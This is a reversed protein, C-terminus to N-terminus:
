GVRINATVNKEKESGSSLCGCCFCVLLFICYEKRTNQLYQNTLQNIIKWTNNIDFAGDGCVDHTKFLNNPDKKM